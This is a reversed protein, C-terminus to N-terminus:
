VKALYLGEIMKASCSINYKSRQVKEWESTRDTIQLSHIQKRWLDVSLPLFEVEHSIRVERPVGTSCIVPLGSAQGEVAVIGFGESISPILLVDMACLWEEVRNSIGLFMVDDAIELDKAQKELKDREEGDGVLLLKVNEGSRRMEKLVNLLFSQNKQQDLRGVCGLLIEDKIDLQNRCEYRKQKSFVFREVDIGNPIIRAPEDNFLFHAAQESAAWRDDAYEKFITKCVEHGLLKIKKGKCDRLGSGHCHVIVRQIGCIKLFFAQMMSVGHFVNLHVVSISNNKCLKVLPIISGLTKRFAGINNKNQLAVIEIKREKLQMDFRSECKEACAITFQINETNMHLITEAIFTEIGGQNWTDCYICVKERKSESEKMRM